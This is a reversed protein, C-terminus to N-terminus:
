RNKPYPFIWKKTEQGTTIPASGDFQKKMRRRLADFVRVHGRDVHQRQQPMERCRGQRRGRFCGDAGRPDDGLRSLRRGHPLGRLPPIRGHGGDHRVRPVRSALYRSARFQRGQSTATTAQVHNTRRRARDADTVRSGRRDGADSTTLM